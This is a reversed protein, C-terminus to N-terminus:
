EKYNEIKLFISMAYRGDGIAPFIGHRNFFNGPFSVFMGKEPKIMLDHEPFYLEGGSYNDNLYILNSLTGSWMYMVNQYDGFNDCHIDTVFNEHRKLIYFRENHQINMSVDEILKFGFLDQAKNKMKELTKNALYNAKKLEEDSLFEKKEFIFKLFDVDENSIFNKIIKITDKSNGIQETIPDIKVNMDKKINEYMSFSPFLKAPDREKKDLIEFYHNNM